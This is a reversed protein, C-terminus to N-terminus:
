WFSVPQFAISELFQSLLYITIKSAMMLLLAFKEGQSGAKVEEGCISRSQSGKMDKPLLHSKSKLNKLTFM